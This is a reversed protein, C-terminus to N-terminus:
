SCIRSYQISITSLYIPLSFETGAPAVRSVGIFAWEGDIKTQDLTVAVSIQRLNVSGGPIAPTVTFDASLQTDDFGTAPPTFGLLDNNPLYIMDIRLKALGAAVLFSPVLFHMVAIVPKTRDLDIPINFIGEVPTDQNVSPRVQWGPIATDIPDYPTFRNDPPYGAGEGSSALMPANLFLEGLGCGDTGDHGRPGKRGKKGKKGRKCELQESTFGCCKLLKERKRPSLNKDQLIWQAAADIKKVTEKDQQTCLLLLPMVLLLSLLVSVKNKM